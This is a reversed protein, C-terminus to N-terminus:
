GSIFGARMMTVNYPLKIPVIIIIIIIIMMMMMIILRSVIHLLASGSLGVTILGSSLKGANRGCEHKM